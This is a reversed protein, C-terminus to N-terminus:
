LPGSSLVNFIKTGLHFFAIRPLQDSYELNLAKIIFAVPVFAAFFVLTGDMSLSSGKDLTLALVAYTTAIVIADLLVSKM